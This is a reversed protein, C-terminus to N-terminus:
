EYHVLINKANKCVEDILELPEIVRVADGYSLIWQTLHNRNTFVNEFRLKGSQKDFTICEPGYEDILRYKVSTDFLAILKIDDIWIYDDFNLQKESIFREEYNTQANQLESM